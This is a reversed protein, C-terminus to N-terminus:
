EDGIFLNNKLAAERLLGPRDLVQTQAEKVIDSDKANYEICNKNILIFDKQMQIASRYEGRELKEKMTSYDMPNKILEYYDPFDDRPVPDSFLGGHEEDIRMVEELLTSLVPQVFSRPFVPWPLAAQKAKSLGAGWARRRKVEKMSVSKKGSKYMDSVLSSFQTLDPLQDARNQVLCCFQGDDVDSWDDEDDSHKRYGDEDVSDSDTRRKKRRPQKEDDSDSEDGGNDAGRSKRGKRKKKSSTILLKPNIAAADDEGLHGDAGLNSTRCKRRRNGELRKM